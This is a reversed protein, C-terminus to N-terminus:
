RPGQLPLYCCGTVPPVQITNSITLDIRMLSDCGTVSSYTHTYIGSTTYATGSFSYSGCASVTTLSDFSHDVTLTINIISDCGTANGNNLTQTYSGTATYTYGNLTLSDCATTVISNTSSCNQNLKLLYIDNEGASTRNYVGPGHDFDYTGTYTYAAYVNDNNDVTIYGGGSNAMNIDWVFNAASDLKVLFSETGSLTNVGAGPNVDISGEYGGSIYLHQSNDLALGAAGEYGSGGINKAWIFAGSTDLKIVFLDLNGNSILNFVGANPNADMTNAFSGTCYLHGSQDVVVANVQDVGTGGFQKAWIFNGATDAKAIFIDYNGASTISLTGFDATGTFTGSMVLNGSSPDIMLSQFHNYGDPGMRKAWIFNGATDMKMLFLNRYTTSTLTSVGLGPNFDVVDAFWGLVYLHGYNDVVVNNGAHSFPSGISKAWLLNGNPATKTIFVDGYIPNTGTSVLNNTGAGPDFDVTGAFSGTTYVNGSQDTCM